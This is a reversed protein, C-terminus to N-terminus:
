GKQLYLSLFISLFMGALALVTIVVLVYVEVTLKSPDKVPPPASEDLLPLYRARSQDSFQGTQLAWIFAILSVCLSLVVLIIWLPFFM